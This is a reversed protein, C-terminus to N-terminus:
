PFAQDRRIIISLMASGETVSDGYESEIQVTQPKAARVHTM